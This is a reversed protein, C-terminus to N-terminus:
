TMTCAAQDGLPAASYLLTDVHTDVDVGTREHESEIVLSIASYRSRSCSGALPYVYSSCYQISQLHPRSRPRSRPRPRVHPYM